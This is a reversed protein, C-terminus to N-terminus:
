AAERGPLEKVAYMVVSHHFGSAKGVSSYTYGAQVLSRWVRWRALFYGSTRQGALFATPSMGRRSVEALAAGLWIEPTCRM